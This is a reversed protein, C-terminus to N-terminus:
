PSSIRTSHQCCAHARSIKKQRPTYLVDLKMEESSSHSNQADSERSSDTKKRIRNQCKVETSQMHCECVGFLVTCESVASSLRSSSNWYQAKTQHQRLKVPKFWVAARHGQPRFWSPTFLSLFMVSCMHHKGRSAQKLVSDLSNFQNTAKITNLNHHINM